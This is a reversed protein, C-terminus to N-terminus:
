KSPMTKKESPSNIQLTKLFIKYGRPTYPPSPTGEQDYYKKLLTPMQTCVAKVKANLIKSM